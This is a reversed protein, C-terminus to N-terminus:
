SRHYCVQQRKDIPKQFELIHIQPDRGATAIHAHHLGRAIREMVRREIPSIEIPTTEIPDLSLSANDFLSHQDGHQSHFTEPAHLLPSEVTFGFSGRFTHGFRFHNVMREGISLPDFFHPRPERESSAAYQVLQRLQNIQSHAQNLTLSDYNGTEPNRLYLVDSNFYKIRQITTEPHEDQLASLLNITNTLYIPYDFRNPHAPLVLEIPHQDNDQAGSFVLWKPGHSALIWGKLSLYASLNDLSVIQVLSTSDTQNM